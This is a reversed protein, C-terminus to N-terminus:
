KYFYRSTPNISMILEQESNCRILSADPNQEKRKSTTLDKALQHARGVSMFETTLNKASLILNKSYLGGESTDESTEGISCSYLSIQQPIAQMLRAEYRQRVRSDVSASKIIRQDYMESFELIPYTRCCDYITVQRNAINKLESESIKENNANIELVTERKQGGHGSYIVIAFDLNLDKLESIKSKLEKLSPQMQSVIELHDWAGGVDSKFFSIYNIFDKNVGPLGDNNGIFLIRKKM